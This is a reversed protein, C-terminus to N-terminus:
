CTIRLSAITDRESVITSMEPLPPFWALVMYLSESSTWEPYVYFGISSVRVQETEMGYLLPFTNKLIKCTGNDKVSLETTAFSIANRMRM